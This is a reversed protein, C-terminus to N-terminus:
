QGGGADTNSGGGGAAAVLMDAWSQVCDVDAQAVHTIGPYPMALGCAQQAKIKDLFLGTAPLVGPQLYPGNGGCAMSMSNPNGGVLIQEWGPSAMDFGSAPTGAEHCGGGNCGYTSLAAMAQTGNCTVGGSGGGGGGAGGGADLLSADLSGPCGTLGVSFLLAGLLGLATQASSRGAPLARLM